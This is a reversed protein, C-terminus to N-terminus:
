IGLLAGVESRCVETVPEIASCREVDHLGDDAGDVCPCPIDRDEAIRHSGGRSSPLLRCRIGGRSLRDRLVNM